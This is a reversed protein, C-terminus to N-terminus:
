GRQNDHRIREIALDILESRSATPRRQREYDILREATSEIGLVMTLLEVYKDQPPAPNPRPQQSPEWPQALNQPPPFAPSPPPSALSRPGAHNRHPSVVVAAFLVFFVAAGAGVVVAYRVAIDSGLGLAVIGLVVAVALPVSALLLKVKVSM